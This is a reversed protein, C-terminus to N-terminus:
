NGKEKEVKKFVIKVKRLFIKFVGNESKGNELSWKSSFSFLFIDDLWTKLSSKQKKKLLFIFCDM